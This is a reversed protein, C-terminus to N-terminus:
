LPALMDQAEGVTNCADLMFALELDTLTHTHTSAHRDKPLDYICVCM